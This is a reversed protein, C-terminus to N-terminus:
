VHSCHPGPQTTNGGEFVAEAHDFDDRQGEEAQHTGPKETPRVLVGKQERLVIAQSLLRGM